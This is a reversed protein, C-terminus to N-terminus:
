AARLLDSYRRAVELEDRRSLGGSGAEPAERRVWEVTEGLWEAYPTPRFGLKEVALGPDLIQDRSASFPAFLERGGWRDLTEKPVGLVEPEQCGTLRAVSGVVDRVSVIEWSAVNYGGGALDERSLAATVAAAADAVYLHRFSNFGGDPLLIPGGDLVRHVYGAYRGTPDGPGGVIPFRLRVAALEGRRDADELLDEAARKGAGYTYEISGPALPTPSRQVLASRPYQDEGVPNSWEGTCWYVSGTSIMVYRRTRGRFAAVVAEAQIADFCLFDVVADFGSAALENLTAQRNRDGKIARTGSSATCGSRNLVAVQHGTRSLREEVSSSLFGGGGLLLVNV